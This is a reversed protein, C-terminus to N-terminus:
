RQGRVWSSEDIAFKWPPQATYRNYIDMADQASIVGKLLVVDAIRGSFPNTNPSTTGASAGDTSVGLAIPEPNTTGDDRGLGWRAPLLRIHRSAGNTYIACSGMADWRILVFNWQNPTLGTATLTTNGASGFFTVRAAQDNHYTVRLGGGNNSGGAQKSFITQDSASGTALFWFALAGSEIELSPNHIIRVHSSNAIAMSRAGPDYPIEAWRNQAVTGHLRGDNAAIEDYAFSAGQERFRWRGALTFGDWPDQGATIAPVVTTQLRARAGGIQASSAIVFPQTPDTSLTETSAPDHASLVLKAGDLDLEVPGDYREKWGTPDALARHVGLEVGSAAAARARTSESTLKASQAQAHQVMVAALGAATVLATTSLVLIYASGRRRRM